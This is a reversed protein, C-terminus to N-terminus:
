RTTRATNISAEAVAPTAPTTPLAAPANTDRSPLCRLVTFSGNSATNVRTPYVTRTRLQSAVVQTCCRTNLPYTTTGDITIFVPADITATSPITQALVICRKCGNIYSANEPLKIILNGGTFTISESIIFNNCLKCNNVCAM